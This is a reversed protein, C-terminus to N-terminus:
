TNFPHLRTRLLRPTTGLVTRVERTFHSQDAYGSELALQSLPLSSTGLLTVARQIRLKRAYTTVSIGYHDRFTRAVHVRHVGAERALEAVSLSGHDDHMMERIRDLWSPAPEKRGRLRRDLQALLETTLDDNRMKQLPGDHARSRHIGAALAALRTDNEIFRPSDLEMLQGPAEIMICTAGTASFDIDHRASGSVRTTGAGVDRWSSKEREAFGGAIVVCVHAGEHEHKRFRTAGPVDFSHALTM